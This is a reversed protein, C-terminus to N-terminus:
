FKIGIVEFYEEKKIIVVGFFLMVNIIVIIDDLYDINIVRSVGDGFVVCIVVRYVM